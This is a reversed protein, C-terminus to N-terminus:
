NIDWWMKTTQWEKAKTQGKTAELTNDRNYQYEKDAYNLRHIYGFENEYLNNDITSKPTADTQRALAWAEYPQRFNDLWRQAYILKLANSNNLTTSFAVKPNSLIVNLQAPTPLATPKNEKWVASKMAMTTWFNISSKVGNEYETKAAALGTATGLGKVAAEAKLFYVEAATIILEPINKDRGFYYNFNSILNGAGKNSWDDDRRRNYPEGGDSMAQNQAKPAWENKANTEFYIKARPDFIGSGNTNNNDSLMNWATSGMRLYIGAHFSWERWEGTFNQVAPTLGINEINELLPLTLAEKIHTAAVTANADNMRLAYRLRLSNGFKKWLAIDGNLMSESSGINIQDASTSLTAVATKLDNLLSEYINKQSDFVPRYNTPGQDAMGAESYPIDGFIDTMKFTKYAKLITLMAQVNQYKSKDPSENIMRETLRMSILARYYNEWLENSANVMSYGSNGVTTGLQTVPYIWTNATAQEQAGLEISAVIGNFLSKVDATQADKWPANMEDFNKTCSSVMATGLILSSYVITKFYKRKM